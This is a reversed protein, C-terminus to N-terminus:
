IKSQFPKTSDAGSKEFLRFIIHRQPGQTVNKSRRKMWSVMGDKGKSVNVRVYEVHHGCDSKNYGCEQGKALEIM